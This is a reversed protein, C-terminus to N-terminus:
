SHRVSYAPRIARVGANKNQADEKSDTTQLEDIKIKYQAQMQTASAYDRARLHGRYIAGYLIAEHWDQPITPDVSGSLDPLVMMYWINITYVQDPTPYLYLKGDNHFYNTPQAQLTSQENFNEEYFNESMQTVPMHQLTQPDVVSINQVAELFLPSLVTVVTYNRQGAVTNFTSLQDKEKFAFETSVAWWSRNILLDLNATGSSDLDTADIGLAELTESRLQAMSLSM